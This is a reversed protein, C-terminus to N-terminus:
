STKKAKVDLNRGRKASAIRTTGLDEAKIHSIVGLVPLDIEEEADEESKITNDLYEFVFAFGVGLLLGAAIGIAINLLPRPSIPQPNEPLEAETLINVNEVNMLIPLTEKFTAFITNAIDVAMKPDTHTVSVTVVQSGESSSVEVHDSNLDIKLEESVTDLIRQSNIIDNYTAILELSTEIESSSYERDTSSNQKVIFQTSSQYTPTVMLFTYAVALGGMVVVLLLIHLSRKKLIELIDKLSITEEM